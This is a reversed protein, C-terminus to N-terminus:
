DVMIVEGAGDTMLLVTDVATEHQQPDVGEIYVTDIELGSSDQKLTIDVAAGAIGKASLATVINEQLLEVAGTLVDQQADIQITEDVEFSSALDEIKINSIPGTLSIATYLLVVWRILPPLHREPLVAEIVAIVLMLGCMIIALEKFADIM